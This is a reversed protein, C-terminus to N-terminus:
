SHLITGRLNTGSNLKRATYDHKSMSSHASVNLKQEVASAAAALSQSLTPSTSLVSSLSSSPSSSSCQQSGQGNNITIEIQAVALAAAAQSQSLLNIESLRKSQHRLNDVYSYVVNDFANTTESKKPSSYNDISLQVGDTLKKPSDIKTLNEDYSELKEYNTLPLQPKSSSSIKPTQPPPSVHRKSPLFILGNNKTSYATNEFKLSPSTTRSTKEYDTTSSKSADTQQTDNLPSPQPLPM